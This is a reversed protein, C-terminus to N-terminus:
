LFDANLRNLMQFISIKEINLAACVAPIKVISEQKRLSEASVVVGDNGMAMAHALVFCDAGYLFARSMRDKYRNVVFDSIKTVCEWVEPSANVSLGRHEREKFWKALRDNGASIEDYVM